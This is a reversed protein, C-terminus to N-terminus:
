VEKPTIRNTKEPEPIDRTPRSKKALIGTLFDRVELTGEGWTPHQNYTRHAELSLRQLFDRDDAIKGIIRRLGEIDGPDLLFGNEGHNIFETAGGASSAVPVVGFGMAELYAIGYGEYQSPIILANASKLENEVEDMSVSGLFHVNDELGLRRTQRTLNGAYSRDVKDDGCIRLLWSSRPITALAELLTHLGKRRILNGLFVLRLPHTNLAKGYIEETTTMPHLHNRGPRMIHIPIDSLQRVTHSTPASNCIAGDLTNLYSREIHAFMTQLPRPFLEMSRLHHVISVIPTDVKKNMLFLSPHNLEDQLLLDFGGGVIKERLPKSFNDLLNRVYKHHQISIIEVDDGALMLERVLQRDYLYGGSHQDLTGYILLGLRM